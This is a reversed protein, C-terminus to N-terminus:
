KVSALGGTVQSSDKAYSFRVPFKGQVKGGGAGYHLVLREEPDRPLEEQGRTDGHRLLDGRPVFSMKSFEKKTM